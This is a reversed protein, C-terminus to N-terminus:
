QFRELDALAVTLTTGDALAVRGAELHVGAAFRRVGALGLWRGEIGAHPGSRIRVLEPSPTPLAVEPDDIVLAPPDILMGVERGALARLVDMMPTAIPRRLSGDLVLVGFPEIRHRAAAQREDSALVDRREKSALSGVVIGRVGMARARTLVEADVRAGVVLVTGRRGVDMAGARLEGGAPAAIELRGRVPSGLAETGFLGRAPAAIRIGVGPRVDRVIGSVPAEVRDVLDGAAVRWRGEVEYLLEASGGDGAPRGEDVLSSWRDGPRADPGPASPDARAVERTEGDRLIDALAAGVSFTEGATVLPRDGPRLRVFGDIPAAIITRVPVRELGPAVGPAPRVGAELTM